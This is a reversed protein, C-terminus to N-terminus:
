CRWRNVHSSGHTELENVQNVVSIWHGDVANTGGSDRSSTMSPQLWCLMDRIVRVTVPRLRHPCAHINLV